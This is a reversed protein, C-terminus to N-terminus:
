QWAGQAVLDAVPPPQDDAVDPILVALLRPEQLELLREVEAGWPGPPGVEAGEARSERVPEGSAPGVVSAQREPRMYGFTVGPEEDGTLPVREVCRPPLLPHSDDLAVRLEGRGLLLPDLLLHARPRVEGRLLPILCPLLVFGDLLEGGVLALLDLLLPLLVLLEWWLFPALQCAAAPRRGLRGPRGWLWGPRRRM